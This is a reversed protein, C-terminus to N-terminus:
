PNLLQRRWGRATKSYVIRQHLRFLGKKWFEIRHPEVCFGGWYPPRPVPRNSFKKRFFNVRMLLALRNKLPRSQQSAWAGLQSIRPRTVWYADAEKASIEKVRGEILVQRGLPEWYFCLAAKPNARLQRGKRSEKNTFFVFGRMSAEKLLVTRVSINGNRDSTGLFMATPEKLKSRQAQKYLRNFFRLAEKM